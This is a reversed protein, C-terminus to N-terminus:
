YFSAKEDKEDGSKKDTSFIRYGLSLRLTSGSFDYSKAPTGSLDYQHWKIRYDLEVSLGPTFYYRMGALGAIWLAGGSQKRVTVNNRDTFEGYGTEMGAVLLTRGSETIEYGYDTLIGIGWSSLKYETTGAETNKRYYQFFAGTRFGTTFNYYIGPEWSINDVIDYEQESGNQYSLRALPNYEMALLVSLGEGARLGTYGGLIFLLAAAINIRM